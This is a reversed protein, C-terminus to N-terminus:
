MSKSFKTVNRYHIIYAWAFWQIDGSSMMLKIQHIKICVPFILQAKKLYMLNRLNNHKVIKGQQKLM